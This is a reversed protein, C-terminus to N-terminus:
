EDDAYLEPLEIARIGIATALSRANLSGDRIIKRVYWASGPDNRRYRGPVDVDPRQQDDRYNERAM